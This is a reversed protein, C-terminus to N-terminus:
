MRVISQLISDAWAGHENDYKQQMSTLMAETEEKQKQLEEDKEKNLKVQVQKLAEETEKSLQEDFLRAKEEMDESLQKKQLDTAELIRVATAEIESLKGIVDDVSHEMDM